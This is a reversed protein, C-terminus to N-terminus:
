QEAERKVRFSKQTEMGSLQFECWAFGSRFKISHLLLAASTSLVPVGGKTGGVRGDTALVSLASEKRM